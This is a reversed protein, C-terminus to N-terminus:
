QTKNYDTKDNQIFKVSKVGLHNIANMWIDKSSDKLINSYCFPIIEKVTLFNAIAEKNQAAPNFISNMEEIDKFGLILIYEEKGRLTKFFSITNKFEAIKKEADPKNAKELSVILMAFLEVGLEKNDLKLSYEKIIEEELQRRIRGIAQSSIGVKEALSTDSIRSNDLLLGLIKKENKTLWM